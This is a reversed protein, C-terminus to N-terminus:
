RSSNCCPRRTPEAFTFPNFPHEERTWCVLAAGGMTLHATASLPEPRHHVAGCSACTPAILSAEPRLVRLRAREGLHDIARPRGGAPGINTQLRRLVPRERGCVICVMRPAADGDESPANVEAWFARVAPLDHVFQGTVRFAISAGADFDEPLALADSGGDALFACVARVAPEGTAAACRELLERYAAHCAAVREASSGERALGLTYEANDALLLPRIAHARKVRPM